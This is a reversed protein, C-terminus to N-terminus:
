VISGSGCDLIGNPVLDTMWPCSCGRLLNLDEFSMATSTVSVAAEATAVPIRVPAGIAGAGECCAVVCSETVPDFSM